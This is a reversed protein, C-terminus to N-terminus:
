EVKRTFFLLYGYNFGIIQLDMFKDYAFGQEQAITVIKTISPM